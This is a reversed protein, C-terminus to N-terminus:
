EVGSAIRNLFFVSAAILILPPILYLAFALPANQDAGNAVFFTILYFMTLGMAFYLSKYSRRRSIKIGLTAGMLTFSVVAIAISIRRGIESLSRQLQSKLAKIQSYELGNAKADALAKKQEEIRVLLLSLKLYDNNVTLIKKQLLQSFDQIKTVMKGMNEVLLHDHQQNESSPKTTIMSVQEGILQSPATKLHKAILLSLRQNSKNPVVLIVDSATEGVRSPGLADFYVGKLRTLHKNHLLLLPNISRFESKLTNTTLHAQTAVESTIWFNTVMLFAATLLLPALIHGLSFGCARLATIEHSTSLRHTLIFSSILCSIPIAIPLIYPLQYLTFRLITSLPAGLATFHAIEDLRMTLLLFVFAVVCVVTVKLFQQILYRWIIPM